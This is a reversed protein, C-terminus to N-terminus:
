DNEVPSEPPSEGSNSDASNEESAPQQMHNVPSSNPQEDLYVPSHDIHGSPRLEGDHHHHLSQDRLSTPQRSSEWSGAKAHRAAIRELIISAREATKRVFAAVLECAVFFINTTVGVLQVPPTGGQATWGLGQDLCDVMPPERDGVSEIEIMERKDTKEMAEKIGLERGVKMIELRWSGCRIQKAVTATM